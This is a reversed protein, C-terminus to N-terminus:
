RSLHIVLDLTISGLALTTHRSISFLLCIWPLLDRGPIGTPLKRQHPEATGSEACLELHFFSLYRRTSRLSALARTDRIQRARRWVKKRGPRLFLLQLRPPVKKGCRREPLAWWWCCCAHLNGERLGRRPYPGGRASVLTNAGWRTLSYNSFVPGSHNEPGAGTATIVCSMCPPQSRAAHHSVM